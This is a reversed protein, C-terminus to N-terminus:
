SKRLRLNPASPKTNSGQCPTHDHDRPSIKNIKKMLLFHDTVARWPKCIPKGNKVSRPGYACGDFTTSYSLANPIPKLAFDKWGACDTPWEFAFRVRGKWKARLRMIMKGLKSVMDRSERRKATPVLLNGMQGTYNLKQWEAWHTCPLSTWVRVDKGAQFDREAAGEVTYVSRHTRLDSSGEIWNCSEHSRRNAIRCLVPDAECCYDHVAVQLTRKM